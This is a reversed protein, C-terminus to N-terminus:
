YQAHFADHIVMVQRVERLYQMRVVNCVNYANKTSPFTTNTPLRLDNEFRTREIMTTRERATHASGSGEYIMVSFIVRLERVSRAVRSVGGAYSSEM